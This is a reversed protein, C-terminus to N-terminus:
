HLRQTLGVWLLATRGCYSVHAENLEPTSCGGKGLTEVLLMYYLVRGMHICWGLTYEDRYM